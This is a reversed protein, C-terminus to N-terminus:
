ASLYKHKVEKTIRGSYLIIENNPGYKAIRDQLTCINIGTKKEAETWSSFTKGALRIAKRSVNIDNKKLYETLSLHTIVNHKVEFELFNNIKNHNLKGKSLKILKENTVVEHNNSLKTALELILNKTNERKAVRGTKLNFERAFDNLNQWYLLICNVPFHDIELQRWTPMKGYKAIEKKGKFILEQKSINSNGNFTAPIHCIALVEKWSGGLRNVATRSRPYQQAKPPYGLEKYLNRIENLLQLNSIGRDHHKIAKESYDGMNQLFCRWLGYKKIIVAQSTRSLDQKMPIRKTQKKLHKYEAIANELDTHNM